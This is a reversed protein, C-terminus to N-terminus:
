NENKASDKKAELKTFGFEKEINEMQNRRVLKYGQEGGAAAADIAKTFTEGERTVMLVSVKKDAAFAKKLAEFQIKNM